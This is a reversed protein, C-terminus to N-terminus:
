LFGFEVRREPGAAVFQAAAHIGALVLIVHKHHQEDFVDAVFVGVYRVRRDRNGLAGAELVHDRELALGVDAVLDVLFDDRRQSVGVLMDSM